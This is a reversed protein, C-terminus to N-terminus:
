NIKQFVFLPGYGALLQYGGEKLFYSVMDNNNKENHVEILIQKCKQFSGKDFNVIAEEAGEIDCVLTYNYVLNTAIIESLKVTTVSIDNEGNLSVRGYLNDKDRKFKVSKQGSYDVASNILIFNDTLNNLQMNRNIIPILDPNAECSILRREKGIISKIHVSTVGLSAGLEIVDLDSRLYKKIFRLEGSEYLGWFIAAKTSSLIINDSCDFSFKGFRRSKIKNNYLSSVIEGAIDSCLLKAGYKKFIKPTM